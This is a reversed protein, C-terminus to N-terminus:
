NGIYGLARMRAITEEDLVRDGASPKRGEGEQMWRRVLHELDATVEPHQGSVNVLDLPDRHVDFLELRDGSPHPSLVLKWPGVIGYRQKALISQAEWKEKWDPIREPNQAIELPLLFGLQDNLDPFRCFDSEGFQAPLSGDSTIPRGDAALTNRGLSVRDLITPALDILSVTTAFIRPSTDEPGAILLPVNAAPGYVFDGHNFYYGQEDLSEGHDATLVILTHDLDGSAEMERLLMGVARDSTAVEGDYLAKAHEIERPSLPNRYTMDGKSIRGYDLIHLYDGEYGPDFSRDFPPAPEYPMHPALWHTWLFFPREPSSRHKLWKGALETVVQDRDRARMAALTSLRRVGRVITLRSWDDGRDDAAAFGQYIGSDHSLVPNSNVAGTVYGRDRLAEALTPSAEGLTYHFNDRVGHTHPSSGTMLSALAPLTRPQPTVALMHVQSRRALRDLHPSTGRPYGAFGLRDARLTDITLLLVNLRDTSPASRARTLVTPLVILLLIALNALWPRPTARRAIWFLAFHGALAGATVAAIGGLASKWLKAGELIEGGSVRPLWILLGAGVGLVLAFPSVRALPARWGSSGEPFLLGWLFGFAAGAAGMQSLDRLPSSLVPDAPGRLISTRLLIEAAALM